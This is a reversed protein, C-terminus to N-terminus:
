SQPVDKPLPYEIGALQRLMRRLLAVEEPTFREALM